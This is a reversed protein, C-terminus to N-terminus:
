SKRDRDMWANLEPLHEEYHDWTEGGIWAEFANGNAGAFHGPTFLEDPSAHQLLDLLQRYTKQESRRVEELPLLRTNALTRANRADMDGLPEPTGGARLTNLRSVLTGEWYALHGLTDKVSWGDHLIPAELDKEPIRALTQELAQRGSVIRALLDEKRSKPESM